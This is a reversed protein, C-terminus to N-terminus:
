VLHCRRWLIKYTCWIDGLWSAPIWSGNTMIMEVSLMKYLKRKIWWFLILPQRNVLVLHSFSILPKFRYVWKLREVSLCNTFTLPLFRMKHSQMHSQVKWSVFPETVGEFFQLIKDVNYLANKEAKGRPSTYKVHFSHIMRWTHGYSHSQSQLHAYKSPSAIILDYQPLM